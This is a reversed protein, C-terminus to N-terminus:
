ADKPKCSETLTVSVPQVHGSNDSGNRRLTRARAPLLCLGVLVRRGLVTRGRIQHGRHDRLGPAASVLYGATVALRILKTWFMSAESKSRVKPAVRPRRHPEFGANFTAM